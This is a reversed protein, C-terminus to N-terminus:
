RGDERCIFLYPFATEIFVSNWGRTGEHRNSKVSNAAHSIATSNSQWRARLPLALRLCLLHEQGVAVNENVALKSTTDKNKNTKKEGEKM